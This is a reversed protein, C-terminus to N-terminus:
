NLYSVSPRSGITLRSAMGAGRCLYLEYGRRAIEEHGSRQMLLVEKMACRMLPKREVTLRRVPVPESARYSFACAGDAQNTGTMEADVAYWVRATDTAAQKVCVTDKALVV